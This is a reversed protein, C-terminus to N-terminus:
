LNIIIHKQLTCLSPIEYSSSEACNCFHGALVSNYQKDKLCNALTM